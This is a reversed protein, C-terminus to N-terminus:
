ASQRLPRHELISLGLARMEGETVSRVFDETHAACFVTVVDHFDMPDDVKLLDTAEAGCRDHDVYDCRTVVRVKKGM